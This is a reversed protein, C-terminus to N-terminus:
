EHDKVALKKRVDRELERMAKTGRARAPLATITVLSQTYAEQAEMHRGADELIDGRRKQVLEKRLYQPAVQELRELADDYDGHETQLDIACWQLTVVPGLEELGEDLGRIASELMDTQGALLRAREIYYVPRPKVSMEIARDMEAVADITHGLDALIRARTYVAKAEEPHGVLYTDIAVLAESWESQDVLALARGYYVKNLTPDIALARDFDSLADAPKGDVRYLNGRIFYLDANQPDDDIRHSIAAIRKDLPGHGMLDTAPGNTLVVAVLITKCLRSM